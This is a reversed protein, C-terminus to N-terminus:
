ISLRLDSQCGFGCLFFVHCGLFMWLRPLTGTLLFVSGHCTLAFVLTKLIAEANLEQEAEAAEEEVEAESVREDESAYDQLFGQLTVGQQCVVEAHMEGQATVEVNLCRIQLALRNNISVTMANMDLCISVSTKQLMEPTMERRKRKNHIIEDGTKKSLWFTKTSAATAGELRKAAVAESFKGTAKDAEAYFVAKKFRALEREVMQVLQFPLVAWTDDVRVQWLRQMTGPTRIVIMDQIAPFELDPVSELNCLDSM